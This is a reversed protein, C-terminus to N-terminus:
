FDKKISVKVSTGIRECVAGIEEGRRKSFFVRRAGLVARRVGLWMFGVIKARGANGRTRSTLRFTPM